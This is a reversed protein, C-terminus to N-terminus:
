PVEDYDFGDDDVSEADPTPVKPAPLEWRGIPAPQHTRTLALCMERTTATICYISAPGYWQTALPTLDPPDGDPEPEEGQLYVDIRLLGADDSVYGALKRHGMLELVCWGKDQRETTSM